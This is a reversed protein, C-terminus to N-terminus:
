LGAGASVRDRGSGDMEAPRALGVAAERSEIPRLFERLAALLERPREEQPLHGCRALTLERAGAIAGAFRAADRVPIWRDDRGWVVLTPARVDALADEVLRERGALSVALSRAAAFSGPRRAAELYEAVREDTLLRRDYLVQRLAAEVLLREVPLHALLGAFPSVALRVLLPWRGPDLEFGASDLLVLAAVREPHHAAVIVATAGGLSNGVLVARRLQLRDMLGLVARPLDDVTLDPPEDSQGFGPLDLAVVDHDGALGPILEKWTYLSSGFGHILVVPRGVGSRVYRLRRGDVTAFRAQLGAAELWAVPRPAAREYAALGVLAFALGIVLLSLTWRTRRM